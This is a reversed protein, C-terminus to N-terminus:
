ARILEREFEALTAFLGFVLRGGANTDIKTGQGSLVRFRVKREMLDHITNSLIASTAVLGSVQDQSLRSSKVAAAILSDCQMELVQSEDAKSIRMYGILM